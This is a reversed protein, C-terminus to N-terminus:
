PQLNLAVPEYPYKKTCGTTLSVEKDNFNSYPTQCLWSGKEWHSKGGVVKRCLHSEILRKHFRSHADKRKRWGLIFEYRTKKNEENIKKLILKFKFFDWILEFRFLFFWLGFM